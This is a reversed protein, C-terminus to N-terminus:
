TQIGLAEGHFRLAARVHVDWYDWTHAGAHEEYRHAVARKELAAHFRRSDEVLHDETGCDIGIRPLRDRGFQALARDLVVELDVEDVAVDRFWPESPIQARTAIRSSHAWVSAFRDAHRLGLRLAGYGGMSLGGIAHKGERVRFTRRVHADLDDVLFSEMRLLPHVDAYFSIEANPLVVILPVDAVHRILNSREIWSRHDDSRGHLQYLVPFPPTGVDPVLALYTARRGLAPSDFSLEALTPV